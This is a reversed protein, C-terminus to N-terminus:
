KEGYTAYLLQRWVCRKIEILESDYSQTADVDIVRSKGFVLKATIEAKPAVEALTHEPKRRVSEEPPLLLKFMLEPQYKQARAVAREERKAQNRIFRGGDPYRVRIKPGDYMGTFQDQPFRDLIAIGGRSAYKHAKKLEKLSREAIQRLYVSQLLEFGFVLIRRKLSPKKKKGDGGGNVSQSGSKSSSGGGIRRGTAIIRKLFGNYHDGSGLYFREAEIKWNLWKKIENSVTSKGSGDAGIFCVTMGGAPPTKRRIPTYHLYKKIIHQLLSRYIFYKKRCKATLDSMTKHNKLWRYVARYVEYWEKHSLSGKETMAALRVGDAAMFASCIERVKEPDSREKLYSLEKKYGDDPEISKKDKAKLAIRSYLILTEMEPAAIYVQTEPDLVRTAIVQDGIPFVYEKSFKTGTIIEYHLHVHVLKGTDGDFGIWECVRPYRAGKQPVFKIYETQALLQEAASRDEPLVFVDLDTLGDLGESLHENSKWHCYKIEADNWRCFLEKCVRLM